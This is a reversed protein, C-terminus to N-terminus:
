IYMKMNEGTGFCFIRSHELFRGVVSIVEINDTKGEVGFTDSGFPPQLGFGERAVIVTDFVCLAAAEPKETGTGVALFRGLGVPEHM